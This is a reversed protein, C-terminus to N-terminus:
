SGKRGREGRWKRGDGKVEGRGGWGDGRGKLRGEGRGRGRGGRGRVKCAKGELVEQVLQYRRLAEAMAAEGVPNEYIIVNYSFTLGMDRSSAFPGVALLLLLLLTCMSTEWSLHLHMLTRRGQESLIHSKHLGHLLCAAHKSSLSDIPVSAQPQLRISLRTQEYDHAMSISTASCM